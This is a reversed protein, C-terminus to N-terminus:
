AAARQMERLLYLTEVMPGPFGVGTIQCEAVKADFVAWDCNDYIRSLYDSLTETIARDTWHAM